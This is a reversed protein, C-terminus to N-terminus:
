SVGKAPFYYGTASAVTQGTVPTATAQVTITITDTAFIRIPSIVRGQAITGKENIINDYNPVPRNNILIRWILTGPVFPTPNNIVNMSIWKIVGDLGQPVVFTLIPVDLGTLPLPLALTGQKDFSVSGPPEDIWVRGQVAAPNPISGIAQSSAPEPPAALVGTNGIRQLHWAALNALQMAESNLPPSTGRGHQLGTQPSSIIVPLIYNTASTAM